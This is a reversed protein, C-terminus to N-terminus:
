MKVECLQFSLVLIGKVYSLYDGTVGAHSIICLYFVVPYLILSYRAQRGSLLVGWICTRWFFTSNEESFGNCLWKVTRKVRTFANWRGINWNVFIILMLDLLYVRTRIKKTIRAILHKYIKCKGSRFISILGFEM